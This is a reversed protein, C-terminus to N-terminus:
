PRWAHNTRAASSVPLESGVRFRRNSKKTSLSPAVKSREPVVLRPRPESETTLGDRYLTLGSCAAAIFANIAYEFEEFPADFTGVGGGGV